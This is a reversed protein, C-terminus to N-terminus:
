AAQALMQSARVRQKQRLESVIREILEENLVKEPDLPKGGPNLYQSPISSPNSLAQIAGDRVNELAVRVAGVAGELNKTFSPASDMPVLHPGNELFICYGFSGGEKGIIIQLHEPRTFIELAALVTIVAM